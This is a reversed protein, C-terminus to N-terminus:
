PRAAAPASASVLPHAISRMVMGDSQMEFGTRGPAMLALAPEVSRLVADSVEVRVPAVPAATLRLPPLDLDARHTAMLVVWRDGVGVLRYFRTGSGVVRGPALRQRCSEGAPTLACQADARSTGAPLLGFAVIPDDAIPQLTFAGVREFRDMPMDRPEDELAEHVAIPGALPLALLFGWFGAERVRQMVHEHDAEDNPFRFGRYWRVDVDGALPAGSLDVSISPRWIAPDQRWAAGLDTTLEGDAGGAGARAVVHIGSVLNGRATEVLDFGRCAEGIGTALITDHYDPSVNGVARRVMTFGHIAGLRAVAPPDIAIRVAAAGGAAQTEPAPVIVESRIRALESAARATFSARDAGGDLPIWLEVTLSTGDHWIGIAGDADMSWAADFSPTASLENGARTERFLVRIARLLTEPQAVPIVARVHLEGPAADAMEDLSGLNLEALPRGAAIAGATDRLRRVLADQSPGAQALLLTATGGVDVGLERLPSPSSLVRAADPGLLEELIAPAQPPLTPILAALWGDVLSAPLTVTAAAPRPPSPSAAAAM